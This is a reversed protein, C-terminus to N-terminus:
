KLFEMDGLFQRVTRSLSGSAGERANSEFKNRKVAAGDRVSLHHTVGRKLQCEEQGRQALTMRQAYKFM